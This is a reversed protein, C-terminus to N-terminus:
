SPSGGTDDHPEVLRTVVWRHKGIQRDRIFGLKEYTSLAGNFLFGAPVSSAGEPYGEVTGGGLGAILDLAGALAATAVGQRRHGRGTYCCAIRWDPSSTQGKEYAARSKIRPVEGPAGFQCWGVCENEQFVLAAHATGAQVRALKRDRNEAPDHRSPEPHFGMCWCGGFIGNNREVLAAFAAWTSPDLAKVTYSPGAM